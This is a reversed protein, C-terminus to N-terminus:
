AMRDSTNAQSSTELPLNLQLVRPDGQADLDFLHMCSWDLKAPPKGRMDWAVASAFVTRIVGRHSIALTPRRAQALEALWPRVRQFVERPSEGGAPRFDLGLAENDQMAAGLAERLAALGCGEWSGWSMETLRPELMVPALGLSQATQICRLLPSSVVQADRWATPVRRGALSRRGADNLPIDTRGQLRRAATWDTEAHRLLALVTM